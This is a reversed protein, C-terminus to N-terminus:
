YVGPDIDEEEVTNTSFM